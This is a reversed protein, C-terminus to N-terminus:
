SRVHGIAWLYLVFPVLTGAVGVFLVRWVHEPALLARPWGSPVQVLVWLAASVSFGYLLAGSSGYAPRVREGLVTYAAFSLAAALGMVVGLPDLGGLGGLPLETVLVVGALAAVLAALVGAGPARRLAVATWAVVLAPGIYQLVIAVAVPLRDIAVYYSTNVAALALGFAVVGAPDRGRAGARAAPLLALGAATILARAESLQVPTVGDEFLARAVVGNSAWLAAALAIAPLAWSRPPAGRESM